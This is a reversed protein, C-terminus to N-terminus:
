NNKFFNPYLSELKKEDLTINRLHSYIEDKFNSFSKDKIAMVINKHQQIVKANNDTSITDLLRLRNYDLSMNEICTWINEFGCQKFIFSHFRNDLEYFEKANNGFNFINEQFSIIKNLENIDEDTLKNCAINFVEKELAERMFISEKIKSFDLKSIYSGKQPFIDLLGEESLKIFAERIPTRSMEFNKCVDPESIVDGPVLTLHMINEKLVKYVYERNSEKTSKLIFKIM